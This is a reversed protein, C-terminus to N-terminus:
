SAKSQDDKGGVKCESKTHRIYWNDAVSKKCDPCIVIVYKHGRSAQKKLIIERAEISIKGGRVGEM